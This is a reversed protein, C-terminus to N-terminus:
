CPADAMWQALRYDVLPLLRMEQRLEVTVPTHWLAEFRMPCSITSEVMLEGGRFSAQHFVERQSASSSPGTLLGVEPHDYGIWIDGFQLATSFRVYQVVNHM